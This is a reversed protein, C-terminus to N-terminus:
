KKKKTAKAAKEVLEFKSPNRKTSKDSNKKRGKSEVVTPELLRLKSGTEQFRKLNAILLAKQLHPLPSILSQLEDDLNIVVRPASETPSLHCQKHFDDITIQIGKLHCDHIQHICPRGHIKTYWHSCKNKLKSSRLSGHIAFRFFNAKWAIWSVRM